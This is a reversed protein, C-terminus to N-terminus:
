AAKNRKFKGAKFAPSEEDVKAAEESTSSTSEGSALKAMRFAICDARWQALWRKGSGATFTLNGKSNEERYERGIWNGAKALQIFEAETLNVEEPMLMTDRQIADSFRKGKERREDECIVDMISGANFGSSSIVRHKTPNILSAKHRTRETREEKSGNVASHYTAKADNYETRKLKFADGESTGAYEKLTVPKGDKFLIAIAGILATKEEQTHKIM